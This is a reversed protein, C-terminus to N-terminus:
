APSVGVSTQHERCYQLGGFRKSNNWCYKGEAYSIKSNCHACILRKSPEAHNSPESTPLASIPEPAAVTVPAASMERPQMFEPLALLDAPRHQRVLMQAWEKITDAGRMNLAGSLLNISSAEDIWRERWQGFQDAKIINGTDLRKADPRQIIAKPHFMVLHHFRPQSGLRGTIGLRELLKALVRAHRESQAVPSAVGFEKSRGYRVTFEGAENIEVNGAYCKTEVLVFDMLRNFILHDIQAVEDDVVFRLDHLVVTSQGDRLVSDIHFAADREGELGRKVREQEERLWGKQRTDLLPSDQLSELLQLRKRKDDAKKILMASRGTRLRVRVGSSLSWGSRVAEGDRGIKGANEGAGAAFVGPLGHQAQQIVTPTLALIREILPEASALGCLRATSDFHRRQIELVKRHRSKGRLRMALQADHM